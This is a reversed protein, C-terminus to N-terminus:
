GLGGDAPAQSMAREVRRAILVTNALDILDAASQIRAVLPAFDDRATGQKASLLRTVDARLAHGLTEANPWREPTYVSALERLDYAVKDPLRGSALRDAWLDIDSAIGTEWGRCVTIPSGGRPQYTIALANRPEKARYMTERAKAYVDELADLYHGIAIGVSLTIGDWVKAFSQRLEDACRVVTDVPLFALVDDGGVFVAAGFHPLKQGEPKARSIIKRATEAFRELEQSFKRHAEPTTQKEIAAGVRDGDAVLLAYYAQPEGLKATLGRLRAALPALVAPEQGSEELLEQYRTPYVAVGEFPFGAYALHRTPDVRGLIDARRLRECEECFTGFLVPEQAAAGRLWPDAAIRSVSPYSQTGGWTRKVVGPADLQEGRTLRLRAAQHDRASDDRPKALVTERTGDLSSKPVDPFPKAVPPFNRCHTRGALLRKLRHRDSAYHTLPVWAAYCELVLTTFDPKVEPNTQDNWTDDRLFFSKIDARTKRSFELWREHVAEKAALAVKEPPVGAPLEALLEDAVTFDVRSDAELLKGDTPAPFILCTHGGGARAVALAAAKAIESLMWSGFWLDRTKRAAAIFPAVPGIELALLHATM